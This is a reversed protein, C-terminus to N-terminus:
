KKNVETSLSTPSNFIVYLQKLFHVCLHIKKRWVWYSSIIVTENKVYSCRYFAYRNQARQNKWM